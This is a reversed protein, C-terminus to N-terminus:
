MYYKNYEELEADNNISDVTEMIMNILEGDSMKYLDKKNIPFTEYSYYECYLDLLQNVYRSIFSFVIYENGSQNVLCNYGDPLKFKVKKSPSIDKNLYYCELDLEFSLVMGDEGAYIQAEDYSSSFYIGKGYTSGWNCGCKNFDFGEKLISLANAMTTGHYLTKKM